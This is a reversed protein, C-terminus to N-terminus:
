IRERKRKLLVNEDWNNQKIMKNKEAPETMQESSLKNKGYEGERKVYLLKQRDLLTYRLASFCEEFALGVVWGVQDYSDFM